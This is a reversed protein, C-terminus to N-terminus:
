LSVEKDRRSWHFRHGLYAVTMVAVGLLPYFASTDETFARGVIIIIVTANVVLYLGPLWPYGWAKYPRTSDKRRARLVFLAAVTITGCLVMAVSVLDLIQEFSETMVLFSAWAAQLWLARSPVKRKSDLTGIERWLVGDRGMAYAVRAGGLIAGNLCAILAVLICCTIVYKATAGGLVAASASGAEDIQSLTSIGLVKVFGLCLLTYLLTIALTGTILARPITRGPNRVEGGLYIVANWGSFAYYIPLYAAVLGTVTLAPTYARKVVTHDPASWFFLVYLAGLTLVVIPVLTVYAQFRGSIAVGARNMLTLMFVLFLAIVQAGSVGWIIPAQLDKGLIVPLQYQCLGVAIAAISGGFVASFLLWGNAFAISPGFAERQFVYDGGSRPFMAGLEGYAVAGGLAVLGGFLWIAIFLWDSGVREAVLPPSLFIGIGLM